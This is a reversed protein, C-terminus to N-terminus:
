AAATKETVKSFWTSYASADSICSAKVLDDSIRPMATINVSNTEVSISSEKTSGAVSPRSATCRYFLARKGTQKTGALQFQFLLAFEVPEDSSAEYVVGTTDDKEQGLVAQMFTDAQDTDEFELSGSYGSNSDAHFWLVNDAYEDTSDGQADLSISKAGPVAVPKEYTLKGTGDDTAVAYHLNSIGYRIRSM